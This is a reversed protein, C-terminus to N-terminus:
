GRLATLVVINELQPAHKKLVDACATATSGTTFVDDILIVSRFGPALKRFKFAGQLNNLRAKRGLRTQTKTNRSRTLARKAPISTLKSLEHVLEDAQNFGRRWKRMWHLPVPILVPSPLAAFRPDNEMAEACFRALEGALYFKKLYKFDVVLQHNAHNNRLAAKAFDFSFDLDQCNPCVFDHDISGEYAEGCKECFPPTLRTCNAVCESCLYRGGETSVACQHCSPPYIYDLFNTLVRQYM